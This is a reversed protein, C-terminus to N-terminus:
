KEGEGKAFEVIGAVGAIVRRTWQRRAQDYHMVALAPMSRVGLWQVVGRDRDADAYAYEGRRRLDAALDPHERHLAQCPVCWAAGVLVLLPRGTRQSAHYASAYDDAPTGPQGCFLVAATLLM